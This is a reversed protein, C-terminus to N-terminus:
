CHKIIIQLFYSGNLMVQIFNVCRTHGIDIDYPALIEELDKVKLLSSDSINDNTMVPFFYFLKFYFVTWLM